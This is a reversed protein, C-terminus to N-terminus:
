TSLLHIPTRLRCKATNGSESFELHSIYGSHDLHSLYQRIRKSDTGLLRGLKYISEIQVTHDYHTVLRSRSYLIYVLLRYSGLNSRPTAGLSRPNNNNM